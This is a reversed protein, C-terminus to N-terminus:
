NGLSRYTKDRKLPNKLFSWNIFHSADGAPFNDSEMIIRGSGRIETFLHGSTNKLDLRGDVTLVNCNAIFSDDDTPMTITKGSKIVANDGSLPYGEDATVYVAAAPDLTWNEPNNWDGSNIAYWTQQAQATWGLIFLLCVFYFQKM